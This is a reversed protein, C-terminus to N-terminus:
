AGRTRAASVAAVVEAALADPDRTGDVVLDSDAGAIGNVAEYIERVSDLYMGLYLQARERFKGPGAEAWGSQAWERIRRALAIEPPLQICAVFDILERMESRGRGFADEMVIVPGPEAKAGTRPSTVPEGRLLARLAGALAPRRWADPDRSGDLWSRLDEPFRTDPEREYDDFFLTAGGLLAAVNKVLTTKGAGSAGSVAIVYPADSGDPQAGDREM